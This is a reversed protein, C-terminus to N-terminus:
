IDSVVVVDGEVDAVVEVRGVDDHLHPLALNFALRHSGVDPHTTRIRDVDAKGLSGVEALELDDNETLGARKRARGDKSHPAPDSIWARGALLSAPDFPCGGLPDLRLWTQVGSRGTTQRRRSWERSTMAGSHRTATALPGAFFEESMPFRTYRRWRWWANKGKDAFVASRAPFAGRRRVAHPEANSRDPAAWRSGGDARRPRSATM